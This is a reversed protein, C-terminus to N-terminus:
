WGGNGSAPTPTPAQKPTPAKNPIGIIPIVLSGFGSVAYGEKQSIECLVLVESGTMWKIAMEPAQFFMIKLKNNADAKIDKLQVTDEFLNLIGMSDGKKTLTLASSDVRGRILVLDGKEGLNFAAQSVPIPPFFIPMIEKVPPVDLEISEITTTADNISLAYRNEFEKVSAEIKYCGDKEFKPVLSCAEDGWFNVIAFKTKLDSGETGAAIVYMTCSLKKVMKKIATGTAEDIVEEEKEYERIASKEIVKIEMEATQGGMKEAFTAMLIKSAQLFREKSKGLHDLYSEVLIDYYQVKIDDMNTKETEAFENLEAVVDKPPKMGRLTEPTVAEDVVVKAIPAKPTEVVPTSQETATDEIQTDDGFETTEPTEIVPEETKKTEKKATM